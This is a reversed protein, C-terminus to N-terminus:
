GASEESASIVVSDLLLFCRRDEAAEIGLCAAILGTCRDTSARYGPLPPDPVHTLDAVDFDRGYCHFDIYRHTALDFTLRLYHWQYKTPSRNFALEQQGNVIDTWPGDFVGGSGKTQIQWKGILSGNEANLYRVAPWWRPPGPSAQDPLDMVDFCFMFSRIATDGLRFDPHEAKYSFWLEIRVQGRWPSTLRKVATGKEGARALTPIKLAYNGNWSGQKGIDWSTLSTLMPVARIGLPLKRDVRQGGALTLEVSRRLSDLSPHKGPYDDWGDYDPFLTQWGCFGDSFDDVCLVRPLPQYRDLLRDRM